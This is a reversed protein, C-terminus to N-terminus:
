NWVCSRQMARWHKYFRVARDYPLNGFWQHSLLPCVNVRVGM